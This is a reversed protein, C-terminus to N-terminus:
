GEFGQFHKAETIEILAATFLLPADAKKYIPLNEKIRKMAQFENEENNKMVMQIIDFFPKITAEYKEGLQQKVSLQEKKLISLNEFTKQKTEMKLYVLNNM